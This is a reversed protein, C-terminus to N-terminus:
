VKPQVEFDKLVLDLTVFHKFEGIVKKSQIIGKIEAPESVGVSNKARVRFTYEDDSILQKATYMHVAASIDKMKVFIGSKGEKMEVTYGNIIVGGDSRPRKWRITMSDKDITM